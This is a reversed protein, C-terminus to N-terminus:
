WFVFAILFLIIGVPARDRIGHSGKRVQEYRKVIEAHLPDPLNLYCKPPGVALFIHMFRDVDVESQKKPDELRFVFSFPKKGMHKIAMEVVEESKSLFYADVVVVINEQQINQLLVTTNYVDYFHEKQYMKDNGQYGVTVSLGLLAGEPWDFRHLANDLETHAVAPEGGNPGKVITFLLIVWNGSQGKLVQTANNFTEINPIELMVGKDSRQSIMYKVLSDLLYQGAPREGMVTNNLLPNFSIKEQAMTSESAVYNEVDKPTLLTNVWSQEPLFTQCNALQVALLLTFIPLKWM